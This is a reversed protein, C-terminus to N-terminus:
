QQAQSLLAEALDAAHYESGEGRRAAVIEKCVTIADEHMNWAKALYEANALAIARATRWDNMKPRIVDALVRGGLADPPCPMIFVRGANDLVTVEGETRKATQTTM